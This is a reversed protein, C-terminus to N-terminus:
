DVLDWCWGGFLRKKIYRFVIVSGNDTTNSTEAEKYNCSLERQVPILIEVNPYNGIDVTALKEKSKALLDSYELSYKKLM